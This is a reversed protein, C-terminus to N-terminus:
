ILEKKSLLEIKSEKHLFSSVLISLEVSDSTSLVVLRGANQNIKLLNSETLLHLLRKAIFVGTDVVAIPKEALNKACTQIVDAIFPYHTCGLAIVDGGAQILPTIYSTIMSKTKESDFEGLEIQDALGPCATPIIKVSYTETVMDLLAHFKKSQVTAQTALVGVVKTQSMQAAPKLGPEVGVLILKPYKERIANIAIVTATNCAVVLAKIKRQLLYDTIALSREIITSESKEGYPAFGSDAFYIFDEFPLADQLHRLVSLGGVGSDFVGIPYNKELPLNIKEVDNSQM